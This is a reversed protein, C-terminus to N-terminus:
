INCLYYLSKFYAFSKESGGFLDLCNQLLVVRAQHVVLVQLVQLVVRALNQDNNDPNKQAPLFFGGFNPPKNNM